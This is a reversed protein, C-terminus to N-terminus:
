HGPIAGIQSLFTVNDWYIRHSVCKGDRTQMIDVYPFAFTNGSAPVTGQPTEFPGTQTGSYVGEVVITNGDVFTRVIEHHMDTVAAVFAGGM